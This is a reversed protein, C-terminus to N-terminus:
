IKSNISSRIMFEPHVKIEHCLIVIPKMMFVIIWEKATLSKKILKSQSNQQRLKIQQSLPQVTHLVILYTICNQYTNM